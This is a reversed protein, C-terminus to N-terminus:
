GGMTIFADRFNIRNEIELINHNENTTQGASGSEQIAAIDIQHRDLKAAIEQMKRLPIANTQSEVFKNKISEKILKKKSLSM